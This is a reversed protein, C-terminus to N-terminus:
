DSLAIFGAYAKRANAKVEGFHARCWIAMLDPDFAVKEIVIGYTKQIQRLRSSAIREFEDFTEPVEDDCVARFRSYNERSPWLVVERQPDDM